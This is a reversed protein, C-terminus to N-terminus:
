MLGQSGRLCEGSLLQSFRRLVCLMGKSLGGGVGALSEKNNKPYCDLDQAHEKLSQMTQKRGNADVVQWANAKLDAHEMRGCSGACAIGM